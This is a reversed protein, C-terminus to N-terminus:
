ADAMGCYSHICEHSLMAPLSAHCPMAHCTRAQSVAMVVYCDLQEDQRVKLAAAGLTPQPLSCPSLPVLLPSRWSCLEAAPQTSRLSCAFM